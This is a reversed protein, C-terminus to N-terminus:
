TVGEVAGIEVERRQLIPSILDPEYQSGCIEGIRDGGEIEFDLPIRQGDQPDERAKQATEDRAVPVEWGV